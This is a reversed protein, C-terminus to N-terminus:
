VDTGDNLYFAGTNTKFARPNGKGRWQVAVTEALRGRREKDLFSKVGVWVWQKPMM